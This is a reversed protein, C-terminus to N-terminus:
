KLKKSNLRENIRSRNIELAEPTVQYDKCLGKHIGQLLDARAIPNPSYGRKQMESVLSEYRNCIFELKDYFFLVHGTGLTYKEPLKRKGKIVDFQAKRALAFVRTIEKYEGQLHERTLEEVPVVNIRTM